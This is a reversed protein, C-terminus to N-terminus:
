EPIPRDADAQQLIAPEIPGTPWEPALLLRDCSCNPVTCRGYRRNGDIRHIHNRNSHKCSRRGCKYRFTM